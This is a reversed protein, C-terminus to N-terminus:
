ALLLVGGIIGAVCAAKPWLHRERLLVIGLLFSVIVSSRRVPSILSILADPHSIAIFYLIDAALLTLGVVPIAWHWHIPRRNPARRASVFGPVLLAALYLTFWAQVTAPPLAADQLLFKDYLASIAGLLTAAIMLFVGKDRHFHIGERR